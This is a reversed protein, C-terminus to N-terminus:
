QKKRRRDKKMRRKAEIAYYMREGKKAGYRRKLKAMLEKDIPM